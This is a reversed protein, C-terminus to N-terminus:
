FDWDRAITFTIVRGRHRVLSIEQALVVLGLTDNPIRAWTSATRRAFVNEIWRDPTTRGPPALSWVSALANDFAGTVTIGRAAGSTTVIAKRAVLKAISPRSRTVSVNDICELGGVVSASYVIWIAGRATTVREVVVRSENVGKELLSPAAGLLRALSDINCTGGPVVRAWAARSPNSLLAAVECLDGSTVDPLGDPHGRSRHAHAPATGALTLAVVVAVVAHARTRNVTERCSMSIARGREKAVGVM